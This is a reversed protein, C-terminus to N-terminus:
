TFENKLKKIYDYIISSGARLKHTYTETTMKINTHGVWEQVTEPPVKALICLSVFTHRTSHRSLNLNLKKYLNYFYQKSGDETLDEFLYTGNMDFNKLLEPLFPVKRKHKKTKSDPMTIKITKSRKNIDKIKIEIAECVRFGTCCCFYFFNYYKEDDIAKLIKNQQSFTIAKCKDEAETKCSIDQKQKNISKKM